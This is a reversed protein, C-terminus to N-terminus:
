YLFWMERPTTIFGDRASCLFIFADVSKTVNVSSIMLPFSLKKHDCKSFFDNISFKIKQPWM